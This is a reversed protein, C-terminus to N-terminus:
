RPSLKDEDPPRLAPDENDTIDTLEPVNDTEPEPYIPERRDLELEVANPSQRLRLPATLDDDTLNSVEKSPLENDTRDTTLAPLSTDTALEAFTDPLKDIM